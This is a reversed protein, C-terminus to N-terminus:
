TEMQFEGEKNSCGITSPSPDRDEVKSKPAGVITSDMSGTSCLNLFEDGSLMPDSTNIVMFFLFVQIHMLWYGIYTLTNCAGILDGSRHYTDSINDVWYLLAVSLFGLNFLMQECLNVTAVACVGKSHPVNSFSRAVTYM